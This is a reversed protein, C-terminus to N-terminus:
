NEGVWLRWPERATAKVMMVTNARRRLLHWFATPVIEQGCCECPGYTRILLVTWGLRRKTQCDRLRFLKSLLKLM